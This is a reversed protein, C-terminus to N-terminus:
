RFGGGAAGPVSADGGGRVAGVAAAAAAAAARAAAVAADDANGSARPWTGRRIGSEEDQSVAPHAYTRLLAAALEDDLGFREALAAPTWRGPDQTRLMFFENVEAHRLMIGGEDGAASEAAAAGGAARMAAQKEGMGSLSAANERHMAHTRKALDTYNQTAVSIAISEEDDGDGMTTTPTTSVARVARARVLLRRAARALM